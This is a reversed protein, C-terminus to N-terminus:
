QLLAEDSIENYYEPHKEYYKIQNQFYNLFKNRNMYSDCIIKDDLQFSNLFMCQRCDNVRYCNKCQMYLADFMKNYLNLIFKDDIVVKNNIIKAYWFKQNIYNCPLIKGNVTLFIKQIFPLCTGNPILKSDVRSKDFLQIYRSYFVDSFDYLFRLFNNFRPDESQKIKANRLKLEDLCKLKSKFISNFEDKREEALGTTSLEGLMPIKVFEKQFFHYINNIDSNSTIVSNFKIFNKFYNPYKDKIFKAANFVSYFSNKGGKNVRYKNVEFPGDLSILLHFENNVLFKIYRELLLANTTLHYEINLGLTNIYNVMSRIFKFNLLPEGGYFSIIRKNNKHNMNDLSRWKKELYSILAKGTEFEMYKGKREDYDDYFEGYGCYKCKLNCDDTVEFVIKDSNALFTNLYSTKLRMDLLQTTDIDSFYGYKELFYFKKEYYTCKKKINVKKKCLYNKKIIIELEPPCIHLQKKNKSYFYSNESISFLITDKM